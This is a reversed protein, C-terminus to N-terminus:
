KNIKKSIALVLEEEKKSPAEQLLYKYKKTKIKKIFIGTYKKWKHNGL